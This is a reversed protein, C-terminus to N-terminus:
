KFEIESRSKIDVDRMSAWYMESVYKAMDGLTEVEFLCFRTVTLTRGEAPNIRISGPRLLGQRRVPDFDLFNPSRDPMGPIVREIKFVRVDYWSFIAADLIANEGALFNEM